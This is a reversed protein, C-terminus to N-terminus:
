VYKNEAQQPPVYVSDILELEYFLSAERYNMEDTPISKVKTMPLSKVRLLLRCWEDKDQPDEATLFHTEEPTM